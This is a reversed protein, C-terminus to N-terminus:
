GKKSENLVFGMLDLIDIQHDSDDRFDNRLGTLKVTVLGDEVIISQIEKVKFSSDNEEIFSKVLFESFDM